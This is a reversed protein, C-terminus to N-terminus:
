GVDAQTEPASADGGIQARAGGSVPNSLDGTGAWYMCLEDAFGPATGRIAEGM